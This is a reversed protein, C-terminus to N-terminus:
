KKVVKLRFPLVFEPNEWSEDFLDYINKQTHSLALYLAGNPKLLKASADVIERIVDFGDVGGFIAYDLPNNGIQNNSSVSPPYSFVVDALETIVDPTEKAYINLPIIKSPSFDFLTSNALTWEYAITNPEVAYVKANNVRSAFVISLNCSGAGMDVAIVDSAYNSAILEIFEASFWSPKYVEDGVPIDFGCFKKDSVYNSLNIKPPM